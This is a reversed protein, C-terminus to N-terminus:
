RARDRVVGLVGAWADESRHVGITPEIAVIWGASGPPAAAIAAATIRAAAVADGAVVLRAATAMVREMVLRGDDKATEGYLRGASGDRLGDETEGHLRAAPGDRLGDLIEVCVQAMPHGPVRAFAEMCATRAGADDGRRMLCVATAYWANACCERAYLHGREELALERRFYELAQDVDDRSLCLLGKLWYVAVVPSRDIIGPDGALAAIAADVDREANRLSGRAVWVMAALCLAMPCGPVQALTERAADIRQQGWSACTLRLWHRWNDPQLEVAQLLSAVAAANDRQRDLIFGLTAWAEALTPDLDRARRASTGARVLLDVDADPRVRMSEYTLVCANAYGVHYLSKNPHREILGTFTALADAIETTVLTKLAAQGNMFARHPLAIAEVDIAAAPGDTLLEPDFRYGLRTVTEICRTLDGADPVSRLRSVAQTVSDESVIRDGWGAKMLDDKSVLEGPRSVFVHLMAFQLPKLAVPVGDRFLRKARLDLRFAGYAIWDDPQM